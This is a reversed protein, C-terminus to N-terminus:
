TLALKNMLSDRGQSANATNEAKSAFTIGRSDYENSDIPNKNQDLWENFLAVL